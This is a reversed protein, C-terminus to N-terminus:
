HDDYPDDYRDKAKWQNLFWSAMAALFLLINVGLCCAIFYGDAGEM